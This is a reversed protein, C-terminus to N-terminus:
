KKKKLLRAKDKAANGSLKYWVTGAICISSYCGCVIGVMLPIAFQRVADVGLIALMLVMVFTTLSTNISRSISQSISRNVVESMDQHTGKKNERIRDFIVITANISYGVITLMCAIFTNGVSIFHSFVAYVMLVVIVDHILALVSSAGFAINKFRIWIYILMFLTALLVSWIADTKMENSVTASITEMQVNEAPVNFQSEIADTVKGRTEDDLTTTRVVLKNEGEVDSIEATANATSKMLSVVEQKKDEDLKVSQDFTIETSTGGKFDLSYNLIEGSKVKNIVLGGICLLFLAGSIMFYKYTNKTFNFTKREKITGYLKENTVGLNVFATMIFKTVVLATFMSLVIGMMLTLAFGKVTGSGMFYLVIAAILTTVNGDIIASMAKDFGIKVASAVTKGTGIEEKIRTFIIVNADVAMGVSLIIGAIGPLTLTVNLGNLALLMAVVYFILAISAAVGPLRYYVIMFIIVLILGILGAWLSTKLSELGLKAGVVNARIEKLELPLAGIRIKTALEQAEEFDKFGGEIVAEGDEIKSKVQPASIEKGDYVISIVQGAFKETADAFKKKGKSTMTLSVVDESKGTEDTRSTAQANAIDSGTLVVNGDPDKFELSGAKGLAELIEKPDSVNPIDITVRNTSEKYAVAETNYAEVRKQMKYVVDSMETETPNEKTAQYTVSAGGALDLGLKINKAQGRGQGAGFIAVCSFLAIVVVVIFLHLIGKSKKNM